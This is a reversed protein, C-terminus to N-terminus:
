IFTVRTQTQIKNLGISEIDTLCVQSSFGITFNAYLPGGTRTMEKSFQVELSEIVMGSKKFFQGIELNIPAPSSRILDIDGLGETANEYGKKLINGANGTLGKFTTDITETLTSIKDSAFNLGNDVSQEIFQAPKEGIVKAAAKITADEVTKFIGLMEGKVHLPEIGNVGGNAPLLYKSLARAALMPQGEGDWDVVMMNININLYNEGVIFVKKSAYSNDLSSGGLALLPSSVDYIKRGLEFTKSLVSSSAVTGMSSWNAALSYRFGNDDSLVGVVSPDIEGTNRSQPTIRVVSYGNKTGEVDGIAALYSKENFLSKDIAGSIFSV